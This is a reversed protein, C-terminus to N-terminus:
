KVLGARVTRTEAKTLNSFSLNLLESKFCQEERNGIESQNRHIEDKPASDRDNSDNKEDIEHSKGRAFAHSGDCGV